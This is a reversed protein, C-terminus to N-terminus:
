ASQGPTAQGRRSRGRAWWSSTCLTWSCRWSSKVTTSAFGKSSLINQHCRTRSCEQSSWQINEVTFKSCCVPSSDACVWITWLFTSNQIGLRLTPLKRILTSIFSTSSLAPVPWSVSSVVTWSAPTAWTASVVFELRLMKVIFMERSQVRTQIIRSCHVLWWQTMLCQILALILCHDLHQCSTASFVPFLIIMLVPLLKNVQQHLCVRSWLWTNAILQTLQDPRTRVSLGHSQPSWEWCVSRRGPDGHQWPEWLGGGRTFVIRWQQWWTENRNFLWAQSVISSRVTGSQRHGSSSANNVRTKPMRRSARQSGNLINQFVKHLFEWYNMLLYCTLWILCGICIGKVRM